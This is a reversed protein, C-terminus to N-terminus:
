CVYIMSTSYRSQFPRHWGKAMSANTGWPEHSDRETPWYWAESLNWVQLYHGQGGSVNWAPVFIRKARRLCSEVGMNSSHIRSMIEQRMTKLVEIKAGKFILGDQVSIEDRVNYYAHLQAPIRDKEEPWRSLIISSMKQLNEDAATEKCFQELRKDSMPLFKAMNINDFETAGEEHPWPLYARSLM